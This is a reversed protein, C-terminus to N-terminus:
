FTIELLSEAKLHRGAAPFDVRVKELEKLAEKYDERKLYCRGIFIQARAKGDDPAAKSDIVKRLDNLARDYSGQNYHHIGTNLLTKIASEDEAVALTAAFLLFLVSLFLKKLLNTM